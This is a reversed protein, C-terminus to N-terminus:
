IPETLKLTFHRVGGPRRQLSVQLTNRDLEQVEVTGGDLESGSLCDLGLKAADLIARRVPDEKRTM